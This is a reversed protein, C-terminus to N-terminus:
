FDQYKQPYTGRQKKIQELASTRRMKVYHIIGEAHMNNKNIENQEKGHKYVEDNTFQRGTHPAGQPSDSELFVSKEILKWLRDLNSSINKETFSTNIFYEMFDLYYTRAEKNKMLNTLLPLSSVKSGGHYDKTSSPWDLIDVYQWKTAWYSIGFTNDYDWPIWMFYPKSMFDKEFGKQGKNYIYFNSPTAWYNDWAGLLMNVAAWRLIEKVDSIDNMHNWYELSEFYKLDNEGKHNIVSIWKALDDYTKYEELSKKGDNSKLQYTREDIEKAKFYQKGSDDGSADKRYELTAPGLDEWYAKYLNGKSEEKSFRRQLFEGDVQEIISYLGYYKNNICFRTYSHKSAPLKAQEFFKWALAERQLSADNWMSKLNLDEMSLFKEKLSIKYSSKPTGNTKNGSTRVSFDSSTYLLKGKEPSPCHESVSSPMQYIEFISGEVKQKELLSSPTMLNEPWNKFRMYYFTNEKFFDEYSFSTENKVEGENFNRNKCSMVALCLISSLYFRKM